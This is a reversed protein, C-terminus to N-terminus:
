DYEIEIKAVNSGLSAILGLDVVKSKGAKVTAPAWRESAVIKGAADYAIVKM